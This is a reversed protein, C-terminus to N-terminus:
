RWAPARHSQLTGHFHSAVGLRDGPMKVEHVQGTDDVGVLVLGQFVAHLIDRVDDDWPREPPGANMNNPASIEMPASNAVVVDVGMLTYQILVDVAGTTRPILHLSAEGHVVDETVTAAEPPLVALAEDVLERMRGPHVLQPRPQGAPAALQERTPPRTGRMRRRSLWRPWSSARSSWERHLWAEAFDLPTTASLNASPVQRVYATIAAELGASDLEGSLDMVVLEDETVINLVAGDVRYAVYEGDEVDIAELDDAAQAADVYVDLDGDQGVVFVAGGGGLRVGGWRTTQWHSM